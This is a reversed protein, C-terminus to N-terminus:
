ESGTGEERDSGGVTGVIKGEVKAADMSSTYIEDRHKSYLEQFLERAKRYDEYGEDGEEPAPHEEFYDVCPQGCEGEIDAIDAYESMMVVEAANGGWNHFMLRYNLVKPNLQSAPAVREIIFPIVTSRQHIPVDFTTVTTVRSGPGEEEQEQARVDGPFAAVLAAAVVLSIGTRPLELKTM